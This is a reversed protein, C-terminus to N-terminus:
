KPQLAESELADLAGASVLLGLRPALEGLYSRPNLRCTVYLLQAPAGFLVIYAIFARGFATLTM